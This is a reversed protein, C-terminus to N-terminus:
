IMGRHLAIAEIGLDTLDLFVLKSGCVEEPRSVIHGSTELRRLLPQQGKRFLDARRFHREGILCLVHLQPQTLKPM